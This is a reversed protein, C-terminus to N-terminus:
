KKKSNYMDTIAKQYERKVENRKVKKTPTLLGNEESFEDLTFHVNKVVEFGKAGNARGITELEKLIEKKLLESNLHDKLNEFNADIGKSKLLEIIENKKPVMIAVVHDETSEGTICLQNVYKCEILPVELKEPAVYEGQSLKFINKVRDIIKLGNGKVLAGIDGSHLWGNEDISKNTNEPDNFYGKFLLPGRACIEGRPYPDGNEDKDTSYYNLHPVDVLKLECAAVPGGVTNGILDSTSTICSAACCETQGYGELIHCSFAIRLIDLIDKSIPASGTVMLRVRGGLTDRIKGFVLPDYIKSILNGTSLYSAKKTSLARDFLKRKVWSVNDRIEFIKKYIREFIKPVGLFMTPKLIKADEMLKSVDGCAFGVAVNRLVCACLFVREMVHALPLFSLHVDTDKIEADSYKVSAVDALIGRHLLMAGKPVGTTGSTYCFTAVTEPTASTYKIEENKGADLIDDFQFVNIGAEKIRKIKEEDIDTDALNKVTHVKSKMFIINKLNGFKGSKLVKDFMKYKNEEMVLTTLKTQDLIYEVTDDGLTDYFTVVSAGIAQAAGDAIVWERKNKGWIGLFRFMGDHVSTIEPCLELSILGRAFCKMLEFIESYTEWRYESFTNKIEYQIPDTENKKPKELKESKTIYRTGLFNREPNNKVAFEMAKWLTNVGEEPETPLQSDKIQPHRLIRTEGKIEPGIFEAYNVRGGVSQNGGM